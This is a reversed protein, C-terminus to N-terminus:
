ECLYTDPNEKDFVENAWIITVMDGKGTNEISHVLGCPIDIVQLEDGSVCYEIAEHKKNNAYICIKGSGSVVL